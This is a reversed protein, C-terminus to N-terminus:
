QNEHQPFRLKFTTGNSSSEFELKAQHRAAISYCVALGLGTGKNKTTLFPTGIKDQIKPDVGPGEDKVFLVIENEEMMTGITLTGGPAMAEMGNRALNLIMQRIEKEDIFPMPPKGLDLKINMGQYNADAELIPYITKVVQDLYKPQLYVSKNRAMSLYESIIANARDLEEIMLDFYMKDQQYHDQESLMQLFGRVATMPNRIEHGISAAMEGILNLRDLRAIEQEIRKQETIDICATLHYAAGDVFVKQINVLIQRIDGTKTILDIEVNELKDTEKYRNMYEEMLLPDDYLKLDMISQGVIQEKDYGTVNLWEDSVDLIKSNQEDILALMVPSGHFVKSFKEESQRLANEAKKRKTVDKHVCLLHLTDNMDIIEASVLYYKLEGFKTCYQVEYNHLSGNEMINNLFLMRDAPSIWLGLDTGSKGLAESREFGTNEVWADNVEVYYGQELTTITIPEPNCQFAKYFKNESLRWATEALNRRTIDIGFKLVMETGDTDIFPYDYYEYSDGNDLHRIWTQYNGKKIVEFSRCPECPQTRGHFVLYCPKNSPDGFRDQFFRNTFSITHDPAILYVLAPLRDLVSFLRARETSCEENKQKLETRCKNLESELKKLVSLDIHNSDGNM